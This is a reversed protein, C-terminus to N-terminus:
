IAAIIELSGRLADALIETAHVAAAPCIGLAHLLSTVLAAPILLGTLPLSILNTLIFYMPFSGFRLYALPGTAAQCAISVAASDWVRRLPSRKAGGAPWFDRLPPYIYAIGAIALYSLQFSVSRVAEADLCVQLVFAGGLVDRLTATRGSVVSLERLLIFLFARSISPGAGVMVCYAGCAATTLLSRCKVASPSNGLVMLIKTVVGYIIGLHLGSLALIHAAGSDRFAHATRVSLNARDGTLLARILANNERDEFPLSDILGKFEDCVRLLPNWTDGSLSIGPGGTMSAAGSRLVCVAGCLAISLFLPIPPMHGAGRRRLTLMNCLVTLSLLLIAASPLVTGCRLRSPLTLTMLTGALFPLAFLEIRRVRPMTTEKPM